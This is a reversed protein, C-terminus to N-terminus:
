EWMNSWKEVCNIVSIKLFVEYQESIRYIKTFINQLCIGFNYLIWDNKRPRTTLNMSILKHLKKQSALSHTSYSSIFKTNKCLGNFKWSKWQAGKVGSTIYKPKKSNRKFAFSMNLICFMGVQNQNLKQYFKLPLHQTMEICINLKWKVLLLVFDVIIEIWQYQVIIWWFFM